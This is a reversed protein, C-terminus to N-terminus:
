IYPCGSMHALTLSIRHETDLDDLGALQSVAAVHRVVARDGHHYVGLAVDVPHLRHEGRTPQPADRHQLRVHVVVVDGAPELQGGAGAGAVDDVLGVRDREVASRDDVPLRQGEAVQPQRHQGGGPVGDRVQREEDLVGGVCTHSRDEGATRHDEATDSPGIEHARIAGLLEGPGLEARSPPQAVERALRLDERRVPEAAEARRPGGRAPVGRRDGGLALAVVRQDLGVLVGEDLPQDRVQGRVRGVVGVHAGPVECAGSGDVQTERVQDVGLLQAFAQGGILPHDVQTVPHRVRGLVDGAADADLEAGLERRVEAPEDRPTRREGQQALRGLLHLRGLTLQDPDADVPGVRRRDAGGRVEDVVGGSIESGVLPDREVVEVCVLLARREGDQVYATVVLPRGGRDGAGHVNRQVRQEGPHGLHGVTRKPHVAGAAEAGRQGDAQQVAGAPLRAQDVVVEGM